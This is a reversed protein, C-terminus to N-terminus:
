KEMFTYFALFLLQSNPLILVFKSLLDIIYMDWVLLVSYLMTDSNNSLIFQFIIYKM